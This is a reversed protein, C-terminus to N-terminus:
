KCAQRISQKYKIKVGESFFYVVITVKSFFIFMQCLARVTVASQAQWQCWKQWRDLGENVDEEAVIFPYKTWRVLM